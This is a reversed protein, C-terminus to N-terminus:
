GEVMCLVVILLRINTIVHWLSSSSLPPAFAEFPNMCQRADNNASQAKIYGSNSLGDAKM